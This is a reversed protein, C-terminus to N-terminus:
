SLPKLFDSWSLKSAEIHIESNAQEEALEVLLAPLNKLGGDINIFRNKGLTNNIITFYADGVRKDLDL